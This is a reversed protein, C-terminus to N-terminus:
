AARAQWRGFGVIDQKQYSLKAVTPITLLPYLYRLAPARARKNLQLLLMSARKTRPATVALAIITGASAPLMFASSARLNTVPLIKAKVQKSPVRPAPRTSSSRPAAPEIWNLPEPGIRWTRKGPLVSCIRPCATQAEMLPSGNSGHKLRSLRSSRENRPETEPM